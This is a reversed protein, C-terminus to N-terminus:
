QKLFRGVLEREGIRARVSYVGTPLGQVDITARGDRLVAQCVERGIADRVQITGSAGIAGVMLHVSSSAPNPFIRLGSAERNMMGTNDEVTFVAPETIVPANHDFYIGAVNAVSEGLALGTNANIEFTVFGHSGLEDSTSDPLNINEFVFSLVGDQLFWVCDHSSALFRFSDPILGTDLTDSIRVLLAEATGTNQFRITYRVAEGATVQEPSLSAPVVRKDNPDFSGVIAQDLTFMNNSPDVDTGSVGIVVSQTVETGLPPSVPTHLVLEIVGSADLALSGYNWVLSNGTVQDPAPTSNVFTLQPDHLLTITGTADLSGINQYTISGPMDFGPRPDEWATFQIRMNMIDPEVALGHDNGTAISFEDPLEASQPPTTVTQYPGPVPEISYSGPPLHLRFTGDHITSTTIHGPEARLTAYPLLGGGDDNIGNANADLFVSGDIYPELVCDPHFFTCPPPLFLDFDNVYGQANIPLGGPICEILSGDCSFEYLGVSLAPLCTLPTSSCTFASLEPLAPLSSILTGDIQLRQLTNPLAPLETIPNGWCSLIALQQPLPDPLATLQNGGCALYLLGTPVAPLVSLGIEEIILDVLSAPLPALNQMPTAAINLQTLGTPLPSFVTIQTLSLDLSTVGAPLIPMSSLGTGSASLGELTGPLPPLTTISTYQVSLWRLATFAGLGTLDTIPLFQLDMDELALVSPHQDDLQDGTIADPVLLELAAAFEPDPITVQAIGSSCSLAGLICTILHQRM